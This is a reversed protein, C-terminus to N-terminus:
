RTSRTPSASRGGDALAPLAPMDAMDGKPAGGDIWSTLSMPAFMTAPHCEICSRYFIPAIDRTFTPTGALSVHRSADFAASNRSTRRKLQDV